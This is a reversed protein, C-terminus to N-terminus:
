SFVAPVIQQSKVDVPGFTSLRLEPIVTLCSFSLTMFADIEPSVGFSRLLEKMHELKEDVIQIPLDAMLGAIPLPLTDVVKGGEAIALGGQNQIVANAALIMDADNLGVVILNHSDHAVTTAVAGRKLGYNGLFGLGIHGTNRHREIVAMKIVDQAPDVGPAYGPLETWPLIREQTTIQGNVLDIVREQTGQERLKFQEETLFGCHISKYIEPFAHAREEPLIVATKGNKYRGQEAVLRGKKYVAEVRLHKLDDFVVLDAQYGCSVAGVQKLGFYSAANLSGMRIARIPDAGRKVAYRVMEDIYGERLLDGPHKDDTVLLCRQYYPAEFMPLLAELNKAATGERVMIWQGKAYKEQAETFSICEHDSHIGATIYANLEKGCLLPAHGDVPLGRGNALEIKNLCGEEGHVVGYANMMEALGLVRAEDLLPALDEASLAAGSEDLATAPVCSSLMVYVDLDMSKTTELMFRIGDTGAVNAIEHPDTIVTTTGHPLAMKEFEWPATMSSELHVHGDILGPAVYKGKLDVEEKGEYSGTGVIIGDVVAIDAPEVTEAFVNVVKANKLVFDAPQKGAAALIRDRLSM